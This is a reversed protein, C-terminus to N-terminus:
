EAISTLASVIKAPRELTRHVPCRGAIERLRDTQEVTLPGEFSVFTRILDIRGEPGAAEIEAASCDACDRALVKEHTLEVAVRELPWEKRRAYMKATIAMCGGLASLLLEYPSPGLDDGGESIGEDATVSHRGDDAEVTYTRGELSTVRVRKV